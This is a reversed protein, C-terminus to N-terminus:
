LETLTPLPTVWLAGRIALTPVSLRTVCGFYARPRSRRPRARLDLPGPPDARRARDAVARPVQHAVGRLCGIARPAPYPGPLRDARHELGRAPARVRRVRDELRRARARVDVRRLVGCRALGRVARRGARQSALGGGLACLRARVSAHLRRGDGSDALDR